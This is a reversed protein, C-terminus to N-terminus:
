SRGDLERPLPNRLRREHVVPYRLVSACRCSPLVGDFLATLTPKGHKLELTTSQIYPATDLRQKISLLITRDVSGIPTHAHPGM